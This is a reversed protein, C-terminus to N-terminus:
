FFVKSIIKDIIPIETNIYKSECNIRDSLRKIKDTDNQIEAIEERYFYLNNKTEKIKLSLLDCNKELQYRLKQLGEKSESIRNSCNVKLDSIM